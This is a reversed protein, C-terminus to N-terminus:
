RTELRHHHMHSEGEVVDGVAVFHDIPQRAPSERMRAGFRVMRDLRQTAGRAAVHKQFRDLPDGGLIADAPVQPM